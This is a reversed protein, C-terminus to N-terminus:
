SQWAPVGIAFSGQLEGALGLRVIEVAEDWTYLQSEETKGNPIKLIVRYHAEGRNYLAPHIEFHGMFDRMMFDHWGHCLPNRITEKISTFQVKVFYPLGPQVLAACGKLEERDGIYKLSVM